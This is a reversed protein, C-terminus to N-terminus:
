ATFYYGILISAIFIVTLLGTGFKTFPWTLIFAKIATEAMGEISNM